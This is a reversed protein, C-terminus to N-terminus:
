VSLVRLVRSRLRRSVDEVTGRDSGVGHKLLRDSGREDAILCRCVLLRSMVRGARRHAVNHAVRGSSHAGDTARQKRRRACESEKRPKRGGESAEGVGIPLAARQQASALAPQQSRPSSACGSGRRPSTALAKKHRSRSCRAARESPSRSLLSRSAHAHM